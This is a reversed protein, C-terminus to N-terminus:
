TARPADITRFRGREWLFGHSRGNADDFIGVIQGRNNIGFPLTGTAGPVEIRRFRGDDLLYGQGGGTFGALEAPPDPDEQASAADPVALAVLAVAVVAALAACGYRCVRDILAMDAGEM